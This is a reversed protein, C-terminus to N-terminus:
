PVSCPQHCHSCGSPLAGASSVVCLQLASPLPYTQLLSPVVDLQLTSARPHPTPTGPVQQGCWHLKSLLTDYLQKPLAAVKAQQEQVQVARQWAANAVNKCRRALEPTNRAISRSAVKNGEEQRGRQWDGQVIQLDVVEGAPEKGGASLKVHLRCKKCQGVALATFNCHSM